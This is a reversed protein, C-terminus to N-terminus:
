SMLVKKIPKQIHQIVIPSDEVAQLHCFCINKCKKHKEGSGNLFGTKIM